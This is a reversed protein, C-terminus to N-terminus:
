GELQELLDAIAENESAGHGAAGCKWHHGNEDEGEYSADYTNGDIASWDMSRVPIPPYDFCTELHLVERTALLSVLRSV